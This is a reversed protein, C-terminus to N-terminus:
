VAERLPPELEEAPPAGLDAAVELAHDAAAMRAVAIGMRMTYNQGRDEPYIQTNNALYLGAIPTRHPAITEHYRHHVIPQGARDKFLWQERIWGREFGPNIRGIYPEYRDLVQAVDEEVIPDDPDTYNSFYVVHNGGYEEPSRFNTQEVAAVFPCDDDTATLWYTGSLPRDLALVLVTAWQYEVADLLARYAAGGPVADLEPALRPLLGSHVTAIVRDAPLLEPAGGETRPELEVGVARGDEVVVRRAARGAEVVGGHGAIAAELADVMRGFSGRLYGLQEKAFLGGDRSAFRLYIKGWFWVMAVEPAHRGFKARLLPGWVREYGERGVRRMIWDQAKLGEYRRWDSVRRLWLATLGLRLRTLLSVPTFRLLDLAGTFPYIRDGVLMGIKSDVWELDEGLGLEGILEAVVRDSRFLHHYFGEIRGGGIEFTRVQGGLVDSAEVLHVDHGEKALEYGAALGGVGGGIVVVRM